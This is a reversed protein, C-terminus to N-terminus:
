GENGYRGEEGADDGSCGVGTECIGGGGGTPGINFCGLGEGGNEGAVENDCSSLAFALVTSTSMWCPFIDSVNDVKALSRGNVFSFVLQINFTVNRTTVCKGNTVVVIPVCIALMICAVDNVM